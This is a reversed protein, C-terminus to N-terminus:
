HANRRKLNRSARRRVNRYLKILKGAYPEIRFRNWISARLEFEYYNLAVASNWDRASHAPCSTAGGREHFAKAEPYAYGCLKRFGMSRARELTACRLMSEISVGSRGRQFQEKVYHNMSLTSKLIRHERGDRIGGIGAVEGTERVEAVLLICSRTLRALIERDPAALIEQVEEDPHMGGKSKGLTSYSDRFVEIVARADESRYDRIFVEM